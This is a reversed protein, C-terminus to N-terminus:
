HALSDTAALLAHGHSSVHAYSAAGGVIGGLIPVVRAVGKKLLDQSVQKLLLKVMEHETFRRVAHAATAKVAYRAGETVVSTGVGVLTFLLVEELSFSYQGTRHYLVGASIRVKQLLVHAADAPIGILLGVPGGALGTTFGVVAAAEACESIFEEIGVEDVRERVGPGTLASELLELASEISGM